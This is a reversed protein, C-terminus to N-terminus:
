PRKETKDNRGADDKERKELELMMELVEQLADYQATRDRREDIDTVTEDPAIAFAFDNLWNFLKEWKDM